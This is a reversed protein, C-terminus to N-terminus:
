SPGSPATWGCPCERAQPRPAGHRGGVHSAERFSRGAPLRGPQGAGGFVPPALGAEFFFHALNPGGRRTWGLTPYGRPLHWAVPKGPRPLSASGGELTTGRSAPLLASLPRPRGSHTLKADCKSSRCPCLATQPQIKNHLSSNTIPYPTGARDKYRLGLFTKVRDGPHGLMGQESTCHEKFVLYHTGAGSLQNM